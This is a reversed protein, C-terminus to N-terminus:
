ESVGLLIETAKLKEELQAIREEPTPKPDPEEPKPLPDHVFEGDVYRYDPLNGDPLKDVIVSNEPAYRQPVASVIRNGEDLMLGYRCLDADNIRIELTDGCDTYSCLLKNRYVGTVAGDDTMFRIELLNEETMTELVEAVTLSDLHIAFSNQTAYDAILYVTSNYLKIFAM